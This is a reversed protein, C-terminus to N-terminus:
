KDDGSPKASSPANLTRALDAAAQDPTIEGGLVKQYLLNLYDRKGGLNQIQTLSRVVGSRSQDRLTAQLPYLRHDLTVNRNVPIAFPLAAQTKRQQETNTLFQALQLNLRTQNPNSARNFLLVDSTLLPTAPRGTAHPLLAIGLSNEGLSGRLAPIWGSWCTIYALKKEVFLRQLEEAEEILFFNPENQSGKLWEMWKAWSKEATFRGRQDFLRDGFIGTGWFTPFFGSHLGVSYGAQAQSILESLTNPPQKVKDKNYCLVQTELNTPIGYLQGHYRIQELAKPQFSSLDLPYNDLVQLSGGQILQNLDTTVSLWLLNPGAGRGAQNIFPAMIEKSPIFKITVTVEPHLQTFDKLQRRIFAEFNSSQTASLGIPLERWISINGPLSEPQPQSNIRPSQKDRCASLWLLFILWIEIVKMLKLM